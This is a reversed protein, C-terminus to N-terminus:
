LAKEVRQPWMQDSICWKSSCIQKLFVNNLCGAFHSRLRVGAALCMSLYQGLWTASDQDLHDCTRDGGTATCLEYLGNTDSQPSIHAFIYLICTGIEYQAVGETPVGDGQQERPGLGASPGVMPQHPLCAWSLGASPGVLPQHPLCTAQLPQHYVPLLRSTSVALACVFGM